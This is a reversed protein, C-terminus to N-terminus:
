SGNFTVSINIESVVTIEVYNLVSHFRSVSANM